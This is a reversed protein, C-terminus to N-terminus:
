EIPQALMENGKAMITETVEEATAVDRWLADIEPYYVTTEFESAHPGVRWLRSNEAHQLAWEIMGPPRPEVLWTERLAPDEYQRKTVPFVVKGQIAWSAPDAAFWSIWRYAAEKVKSRADIVLPDPFYVNVRGGNRPPTLTADFEEYNWQERNDLAALRRQTRNRGQGLAPQGSYHAPEAPQSPRNLENMLNEKSTSGWFLGSSRGRRAMERNVVDTTM